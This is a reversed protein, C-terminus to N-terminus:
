RGEGRIASFFGQRGPHITANMPAGPALDANALGNVTAFLREIPSLFSDDAGTALLQLRPAFTTDEFAAPLKDSADMSLYFIPKVFSFGPILELTVTSERPCIATVKSHLIRRADEIKDEPIGGCYQNLREASVAGAVIPANYVEGGANPVRVYPSYERDGVQGPIFTKPPFPTPEDGPVLVRKPSFDVKGRRGVLRLNRGLFASTAGTTGTYQLKSAFNIGLAEANGKDTTDTIVYWHRSGDAYNGEYIPITITGKDFDITGSKLLQVPGVLRPDVSSPPPGFYQLPVDAGISPPAPAVDDDLEIEPAEDGTSPADTTSPDDTTSPVDTTESTSTSTAGGGTTGPLIDTDIADDIQAYSLVLLCSLVTFLCLTKLSSLSTM